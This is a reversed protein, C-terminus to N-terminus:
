RHRELNREPPGVIALGRLVLNKDIPCQGAHTNLTSAHSRCGFSSRPLAGPILPPVVGRFNVGLPHVKRDEGRRRMSDDNGASLPQFYHHELKPKPKTPKYMLAVNASFVSRLM